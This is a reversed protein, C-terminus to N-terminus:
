ICIIHKNLKKAYSYTKYAGSNHTYEIHCILFDSHEIIWENRKIIRQKHYYNELNPYIIDDYKTHHKQKPNYSSLVKILKINPYVKKLNWVIESSILDFAGHYGDYFTTVGKKILKIVEKKIKDELNLCHWEHTHGAFCCSLEM